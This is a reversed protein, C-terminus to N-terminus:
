PTAAEGDIASARAFAPRATCLADYADFAPRRELLGYALCMLSNLTMGDLTWVDLKGEYLVHNVRNWASGPETSIGGGVVQREVPVLTYPAAACGAVALAAVLLISHTKM